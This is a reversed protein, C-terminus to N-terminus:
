QIVKLEVRRNRERGSETKNSAIPRNPGYGVVILRIPDIGKSKLYDAVSQARQRSLVLNYSTRGQNCTHGSIEMRIGPNRLLTLAIDNLVPYSEPQIVASDYAFLINNFVFVKDLTLPEMVIQLDRNREGPNPILEMSVTQYGELGCEVRYRNCLPLETQYIGRSPKLAQRYRTGNIIYIINLEPSLYYGEPDVVTASITFLVGSNIQDRVIQGTLPSTLDTDEYWVPNDTDDVIWYSRPAYEVLLYEPSTGRSSSRVLTANNTGRQHVYRKERMAGNIVNGLNEPYSWDDWGSSLKVVKFLDMDGMGPYGDSCFFLTKGDWDLFPSDENGETNISTGMNIPNQWEGDTFLSYWIDFGGQGGPRSSSFFLVRDRYVWPDIDDWDSSVTQMLVPKQWLNEKKSTYLDFDQRNSDYKGMIWALNGDESFSGIAEDDDSALEEVLVPTSWTNNLSESCWINYGNYPAPRASSLYLLNGSPHFCFYDEGYETLIGLPLEAKTVSSFIKSQNKLIRLLERAIDSYQVDGYQLYEQFLQIARSNDGLAMYNMATWYIYDPNPPYVREQLLDLKELSLQYNGLDYAELAENFTIEESFSDQLDEEAERYMVPEFPHVIVFNVLSLVWNSYEWELDWNLERTAQLKTDEANKIFDGAQSATMKIYIVQNLDQNHLSLAGRSSDYGLIQIKRTSYEERSSELLTQIEQRIQEKRLELDSSNLIANPVEVLSPNLSLWQKRNQVISKIEDTTLGALRISFIVIAVLLLYTKSKNVKRRGENEGYIIDLALAL